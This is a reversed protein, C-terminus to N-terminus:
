LKSGEPRSVGEREVSELFRSVVWSAAMVGPIDSSDFTRTGLFAAIEKALYLQASSDGFAEDFTISETKSM